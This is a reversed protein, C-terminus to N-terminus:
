AWKRRGWGMRDWVRVGEVGGLASSKKRRQCGLFLLLLLEDPLESM